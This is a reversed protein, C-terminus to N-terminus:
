GIRDRHHHLQLAARYTRPRHSVGRAAGVGLELHDAGVAREDEVVERAEAVVLGVTLM